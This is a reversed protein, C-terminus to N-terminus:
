SRLGQAGFNAPLIGSSVKFWPFLHARLIAHSKAFLALSTLFVRRMPLNDKFQRKAPRFFLLKSRQRGGPFQNSLKVLPEPLSKALKESTETIRRQDDVWSNLISNNWPTRTRYLIYFFANQKEITEFPVSVIHNEQPTRFTLTTSFLRSSVAPSDM